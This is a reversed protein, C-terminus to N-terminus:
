SDECRMWPLRRHHRLKPYSHRSTETMVKSNEMGTKLVSTEMKLTELVMKKLPGLVM